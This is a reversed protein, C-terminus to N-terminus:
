TEMVIADTFMMDSQALVVPAQTAIATDYIWIGYAPDAEPIQPLLVTNETCPFNNLESRPVFVANSAVLGQRDVYEGQDNILAYLQDPDTPDEMGTSEVFVGLRYGLVRCTSWSVLFRDTGDNMPYASSFYGHASVGGDSAVPLVSASEQAPGTAGPKADVPRTKDIY